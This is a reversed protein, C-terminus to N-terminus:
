TSPGRRPRLVVRFPALQHSLLQAGRDDDLNVPAAAAWRIADLCRDGFLIVATGGINRKSPWVMGQAHPVKGRLWHAWSRTKPYDPQEAHILWEDTCVAALDAGTMLSLLSLEHLTEVPVLQRGKVASRLLLRDGGNRYPLSRLLTECLATTDEYALYCYPYPHTENSEFRGGGFPEATPKERFIADKQARRHVRWLTTGAPLTVLNPVPQSGRPPASAPM